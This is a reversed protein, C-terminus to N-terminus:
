NKNILTPIIFSWYLEKAFDGFLSTRIIQELKWLRSLIYNQEISMRRQTKNCLCLLGQLKKEYQCLFECKFKNLTKISM